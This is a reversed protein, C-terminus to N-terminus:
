KTDDIIKWKKNVILKGLVEEAKKKLSLLTDEFWKELKNTGVPIDQKLIIIQNDQIKLFGELNEDKLREDIIEKWIKEGSFTEFFKNIKATWTKLIRERAKPDFILGEDFLYKLARMATGKELGSTEIIEGLNKKGDVAIFIKWHIKSMEIKEKGETKSSKLPITEIPPLTKQVEMIEMKRREIEEFLESLQINITILEPKEDIIFKFTGREKLAINYLAEPGNIDNDIAHVINGDQLYIASNSIMLKGSKKFRTLLYLVEDIKFYKLDGTLAEAM